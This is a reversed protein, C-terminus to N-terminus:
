ERPGEPLGTDYLIQNHLDGKGQARGMKLRDLTREGMEGRRKDDFIVDFCMLLMNEGQGVWVM